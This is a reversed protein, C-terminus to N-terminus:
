DAVGLLSELVAFVCATDQDTRGQALAREYWETSTAFLPAPVGLDRVFEGIIGLDKQFLGMRMAAPEYTGTLMAPGRVSLMRSDGASDTLVRLALELDLGAQRALLLAEAAALNHISVLLNAVLKLKTGNGFEGIDYRARAFADLVPGVQRKADADDGSVLVVLDKTAAQAGTGSLPCDLLRTGLSRRAALKTALPLTSTEVVIADGGSEAVVAEFAAVSPLSTVVVDSREAVERVSAAASGGRDVHQQLRRQDVDYGLVDYGAALLHGSMASGMVGLGVFGINM